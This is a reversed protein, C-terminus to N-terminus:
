QTKPRKLYTDFLWQKHPSRARMDGFFARPFSLYGLVFFVGDTVVGLRVLLPVGFATGQVLCFISFLLQVVNLLLMVWARSHYLSDFALMLMYGRIQSMATSTTALFYSAGLTVAQEVPGMGQWTMGGHLLLTLLWSAVVLRDGWIRYIMNLYMYNTGLKGCSKRYREAADASAYPGTIRCRLANIPGTMWEKELGQRTAEKQTLECGLVQSVRLIHMGAWHVHLKDPESAQVYHTVRQRHMYAPFQDSVEQQFKADTLMRHCFMANVEAICGFAGTYPRTTGLFYLNPQSQKWIGFIHDTYCYSPCNQMQLTNHKAEQCTLVEDFEVDDGKEGLRYKKGSVHQVEDRHYLKVLGQQIFFYIDNLLVREELMQKQHKEQKYFRVYEDEPWQKVLYGLGGPVDMKGDTVLGGAKHQFKTDFKRLDVVENLGVLNAVYSTIKGALWSPSGVKAGKIPLPVLIGTVNPPLSRGTWHQMPEYQDFPGGVNGHTSGIKDVVHFHRCALTVRHGAHVLRSIYLNTTDSFGFVLFHKDGDGAEAIRSLNPLINKDPSFGVSHVLQSSSVLLEGDKGFIRYKGNKEEVCSVEAYQVRDKLEPTLEALLKEYYSRATYFPFDYDYDWWSYNTSEITTVLDFNEGADALKRWIGFATSTVVRFDTGSQQLLKLLPISSVGLGIVCVECDM